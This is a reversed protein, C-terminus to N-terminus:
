EKASLYMGYDGWFYDSAFQSYMKSDVTIKLGDRCGDTMLSESMNNPVSIDAASMGDPVVLTLINSGRLAGGDLRQINKGLTLKEAKSGAFANEAM